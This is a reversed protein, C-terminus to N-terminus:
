IQKRSGIPRASRECRFIVEFLRSHRAMQMKEDDTGTHALELFVAFFVSASPRLYAREKKVATQDFVDM